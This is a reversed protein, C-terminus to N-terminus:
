SDSNPTSPLHDDTKLYGLDECECLFVRVNSNYGHPDRFRRILGGTLYRLRSTQYGALELEGRWQQEAEVARTLAIAAEAFGAVQKSYEPKMSNCIAASVRGTITDLRQKAIDRARNALNRLRQLEALDPSRNRIM